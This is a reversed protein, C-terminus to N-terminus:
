PLGKHKHGAISAWHREHERNMWYKITKKAVGVSIGCALETRSEYGMRAFQNAIENADTKGHHL